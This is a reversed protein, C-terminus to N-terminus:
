ILLESKLEQDRNQLYCRRNSHLHLSSELHKKWCNWKKMQCSLTLRIRFRNQLQSFLICVQFANLNLQAYLIQKNDISQQTFNRVEKEGDVWYLSGNQPSKTITYIIKSRNDNSDAGLHKRFM